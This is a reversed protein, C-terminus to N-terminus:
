CSLWNEDVYGEIIKATKLHSNPGSIVVNIAFGVRGVYSSTFWSLWDLDHDSFKIEKTSSRRYVKWELVVLPVHVPEMDSNWCTMGPADWLLLDKNVHKKRESGPRQRVAGEILIQTPGTLWDVKGLQKQLFGLAYLSVAERERGYWSSDRIYSSFQKLSDAILREIDGM